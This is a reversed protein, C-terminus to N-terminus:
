YRRRAVFPDHPHTLSVTLCWPREDEPLGLQYLTQVASCAVEDDHEMQNITEAVGAANVSGLNHYWWILGSVRNATIRHGALTPRTVIPQPLPKM